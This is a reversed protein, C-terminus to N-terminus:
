SGPVPIEIGDLLYKLYGIRRMLNEDETDLLNNEILLILQNATYAPSQGSLKQNAEMQAKTLANGRMHEITRKLPIPSRTGLETGMRRVSLDGVYSPRVSLTGALRDYDISLEEAIGICRLQDYTALRQGHHSNLEM